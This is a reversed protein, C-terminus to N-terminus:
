KSTTGLLNDEVYAIGIPSIEATHQSPDYEILKSRHAPRLIDRRYVSANSHEVWRFLHDESVPGQRHYLLVLSRDRM